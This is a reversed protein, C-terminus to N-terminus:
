RWVDRGNSPGSTRSHVTLRTRASGRASPPGPRRASPPSRRRSTPPGPRAPASGSTGARGCRTWPGRGRRRSSTARGPSRCSRRPWSRGRARGRWARGGPTPTTRLPGITLFAKAPFGEVKQLQLQLIEDSPLEAIAVASNSGAGLFPLWEEYFTKMYYLNRESFGRLGPLEKRLQASVAKLSGEGLAGSQVRPSVYRGVGYYLGLQVANSGAAARYQSHLIAEKILQVYDNYDVHEGM